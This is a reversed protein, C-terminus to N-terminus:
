ALLRTLIMYVATGTFISLLSNHKWRHIMVTLAVSALAPIGHPATRWEISGLSYFVLLWLVLPPLVSEVNGVWRPPRMRNFLVFPLLRSAFTIVAIVALLTLSDPVTLM